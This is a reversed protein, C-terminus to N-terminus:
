AQPICWKRPMLGLSHWRPGPGQVECRVLSGPSESATPVSRQADSCAWTQAWWGLARSGAQLAALRFAPFRLTAGPFYPRTHRMQSGLSQLSLTGFWGEAKFVSQGPAIPRVLEPPLQCGAGAAAGEHSVRAKHGPGPGQGRQQAGGGSPRTSDEPM